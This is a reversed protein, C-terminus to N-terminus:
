EDCSGLMNSTIHPSGVGLSAVDAKGDFIQGQGAQLSRGGGGGGGVVVVVVVVVSAKVTAM